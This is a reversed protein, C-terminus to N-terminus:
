KVIQERAPSGPQVSKKERSPIPVLHATVCNEPVLYKRAVRKVDQATVARIAPVYKDVDRWSTVIEYSALLMGQSFLSDQSFTFAAELQNKAKELERGGVPEKQLREIETILAKEVESATKGPLIDASVSFLNPDRSILENDADVSLALQKERVLTRTLRSSEGESLLAAIVELVYSDPDKVNPVHYAKVISALQAEKRLVITREGHQPGETDRRQDPAIGAPISGFAREIVPLVQEKKFDGVVVIFANVPVYYTKYYSRLDGVTFRAIDQMWGIVPWHYPQVQFATANLQESLVAKPNDDTRLRREEMVVSRETTFDQERLLLGGMRDSELGIPVAVRDASMNEFYATFDNSTFANEDGGNQEIIRSFEEPGVKETGKFMMHELMHSLGTKGWEENRSGVRYWVQFTVLPAKHNELLIVKLGNPLTVESARDSLAAHVGMPSLLFLLAAAM